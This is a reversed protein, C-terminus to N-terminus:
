GGKVRFAKLVRAPSVRSGALWFWARFPSIGFERKLYPAFRRLFILNNRVVWYEFWLRGGRRQGGKRAYAISPPLHFCTAQPVLFVKAGYTMAAQLQPDSEERYGNGGYSEHFRLGDRFLTAPWLAVATVFPFQTVKEPNAWACLLLRDMDFYGQTERDSRALAQADEEDDRLYIVRPGVLVPHDAKPRHDRCIRVMDKPLIIDDDTTLIEDGTCRALGANKAAPAGLRAPTVVIELRVDHDRCAKSLEAFVRDYSDTSGDNVVVIEAVGDQILWSPWVRALVDPRNHTPALITLKPAM